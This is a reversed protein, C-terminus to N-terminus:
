GFASFLENMAPGLMLLMSAPLLLLMVPITMKVPAKHAEEEAHQRRRIRLEASQTRLVAAIPTGFSEAQLVTAIFMSMEPVDVREAMASLAQKRSAGANVERLAREFEESVAGKAPGVYKAIAQEFGLGATVSITLMDLADPLERIILSRRKKIVEDIQSDPLLFGGVTAGTVLIIAFGLSWGAVKALLLSSGLAIAAYVVKQAFLRNTSIDNMGARALKVALRKHYAQPWELGFTRMIIGVFSEAVGMIQDIVPTTERKPTQTKSQRGTYDTVNRLRQRMARRPGFLWSLFGYTGLTGAVFWLGMLLTTDSM